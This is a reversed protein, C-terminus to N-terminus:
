FTQKYQVWGIRGNGDYLATNLSPQNPNSNDINATTGLVNRVGASLVGGWLGSYSYQLDLETYRKIEGAEPVVKEHHAVTRATVSGSQQTTPAYTLSLINRWPPMGDEGLRDRKELGPFGVSRTYFVYSHQFGLSWRGINTNTSVETSFDFGGTETEALNQAPATMSVIEGTTPNREIDIGFSEVYSSGFRNAAITVDEYDIGVQNELKLYWGDVGFSISDTPQFVTGISVSLSEEEKLEKNGGSIVLWQQPLCDTGGNRQCVGHDIFTQGIKLRRNISIM